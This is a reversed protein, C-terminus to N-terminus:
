AIVVQAYAIWRGLIVIGVWVLLSAVALIRTFKREASTREWFALRHTLTAQFLAAAGLSLALLTMKSWFAPNVLERVPEGVIMVIGTVAAIALGWWLWPMFRRATSTMTQSRGAIELIRLNTMLVSGMVVAIAVIHVCQVVPIIWAHEQIAQSAGAKALWNAFGLM